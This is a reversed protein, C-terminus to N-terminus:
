CDMHQLLTKCLECYKQFPLTKLDLTWMPWPLGKTSYKILNTKIRERDSKQSPVPTPLINDWLDKEYDVVSFGFYSYLLWVSVWNSPNSGIQIYKEKFSRGGNYSFRLLYAVMIIVARLFTNFHKGEYEKKTKSHMFILPEFGIELEIHSVETDHYMLYLMFKPDSGTLLSTLSLKYERGCHQQLLVQMKKVFFDALETDYSITM